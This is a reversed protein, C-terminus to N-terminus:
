HINIVYLLVLLVKEKITELDTDIYKCLVQVFPEIWDFLENDSTKAYATKLTEANETTLKSFYKWVEAKKSIPIQLSIMHSEVLTYITRM